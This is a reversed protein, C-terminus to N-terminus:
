STLSEPPRASAVRARVAERDVKGNANLPLSPATLWVRPLRAAGLREGAWPELLRLLPSPPVSEHVQGVDESTERGVPVVLAAVREGWEEDPVGVVCVDVVGPHTRLVAEVEHPDVTVGGTLIRSSARGVIWLDGDEDIRGLDGTLYWDDEALMAEGTGVYGAARTAGRVRVQGNADIRIETGQLPAGVTGPKVRVLAPSATAVQSTMETMGYTLAVPWGGDLARQLLAEPAAAGGVLACRFSEPPPRSGWLDLLRRLQTPVLSVHTVPGAATNGLISHLLEDARFSGPAVLPCELLLARTVLALGGVHSLSLAAFWVDTPTLELRVRTASASAELGARTLAVGRPTGATGSTWLIAATGPPIRQDASARALANRARSAEDETLRPGLPAAIAGLSWTALLETIGAPDPLLTCPHLAGPELRSRLELARREVADALEARTWSGGPGVLALANPQQSRLAQRLDM